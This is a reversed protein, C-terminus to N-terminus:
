LKLEKKKAWGDTSILQTTTTGFPDFDTYCFGGSKTAYHYDFNGQFRALDESVDPINTVEVHDL